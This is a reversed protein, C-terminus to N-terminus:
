VMIGKNNFIKQNIVVGHYHLKLDLIIGKLLEAAHVSVIENIFLDQEMNSDIFSCSEIGQTEKTNFKELDGFIDYVSKLTSKAEFNKSNPQEVEKLTALVVQGFDKGNGCDLWYFPTKYDQNKDKVDKNKKIFNQMKKRFDIKDVCSIVINSNPVFDCYEDYAEWQTGFIMNYKTILTSAKKRGIESRLFNQRKLVNHDEIIDNDYVFVMLGPHGFEQLAQDLNGLKPLLRSGTGGCGVVTITIPHNPNIFYNPAYHITEKM